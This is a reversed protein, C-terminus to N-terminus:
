GQMNGVQNEKLIIEWVEIEMMIIIFLKEMEKIMKGIVKMFIVMVLIYYEKEKEKAMLGIVKMDIGMKTIIFEM